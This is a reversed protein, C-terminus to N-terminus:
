LEIFAIIDDGSDSTDHNWCYHEAFGYDHEGCRTYVLVSTGRSVPCEGGFWPQKVGRARRPRCYSFDLEGSFFPRMHGTTIETLKGIEWLEGGNSFECDFGQEIIFDWQEMTRGQLLTPEYKDQAAISRSLKGMLENVQGYTRGVSDLPAHSIIHLFEEAEDRSIEIAHPHAKNTSM